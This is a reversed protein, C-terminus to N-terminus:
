KGESIAYRMRGYEESLKQLITNYYIANEALNAEETEVDVNNGDMRMTSATDQVVIPDLSAKGGAYMHKENTRKMTAASDNMAEKLVSEFEVKSAKFNPTDVNSLNNVIVNNRLWAADLASELLNSHGFIANIMKREVKM